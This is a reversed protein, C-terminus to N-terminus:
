CLGDDDIPRWGWNIKIYGSYVELLSASEPLQGSVKELWISVDTPNPREEYNACFGQIGFTDVADVMAHVYGGMYHLLEDNGADSGSLKWDRVTAPGPDPTLGLMSNQASAEGISMVVLLFWFFHKKM